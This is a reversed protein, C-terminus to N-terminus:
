SFREGHLNARVEESVTEPRTKSVDVATLLLNVGNGLEVPWIKPSCSGSKGM